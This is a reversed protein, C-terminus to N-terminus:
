SLDIRLSRENVRSPWITEPPAQTPVGSPILAMMRRTTSDIRGNACAKKCILEPPRSKRAACSGMRRHAASTMGCKAAPAGEARRGSGSACARQDVPELPKSGIPLSEPSAGTAGREEGFDSKGSRRAPKGVGVIWGTLILESDLRD